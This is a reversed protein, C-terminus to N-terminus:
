MANQHFVMRLFFNIGYKDKLISMVTNQPLGNENTIHEFRLLKNEGYVKLSFCLILIYLYYKFPM